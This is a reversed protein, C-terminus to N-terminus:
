QQSLEEGVWELGIAYIEMNVRTQGEESAQATIVVKYTPGDDVSDFFYATGPYKNDAWYNWGARKMNDSYFALVTSPADAAIFSVTRMPPNAANGAVVQQNVQQANPYLPPLRKPHPGNHANGIFAWLFFVVLGIPFLLAIFILSPVPRKQKM